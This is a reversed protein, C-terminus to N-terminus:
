EEAGDWMSESTELYSSEFYYDEPDFLAKALHSYSSLVRYISLDESGSYFASEFECAVTYYERDTCKEYIIINDNGYEEANARAVVIHTSLYFVPEKGFLRDVNYGRCWAHNNLIETATFLGERPDIIEPKSPAYKNIHVVKM